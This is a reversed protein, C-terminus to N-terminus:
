NTYRRLVLVGNHGGFGLNTNIAIDVKKEVAVNPTYSLDCEPDPTTYNITPPIIGTEIVKTCIITELGGAAGLGHGMTGKTSSVSLQKAFDGFVLKLADTEFKDNLSTSTGHANVYGVQEPAVGANKLGMKFAKAAGVGGPAPSTIHYADGTAGYGILEAIINAGRKKAHELEEIVLVGAGEAMVFGDRDKDFPRSAAKPDDNRQSLAKM